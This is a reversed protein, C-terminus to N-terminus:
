SKKEIKASNKFTKLVIVKENELFADDNLESDIDWYTGKFFVKGNRIQGIGKENFFDEKIEKQSSLFKELMKKRLLFILILSILTATAIQWIGDEYTYAYSIFATLVFGIGFWILIFSSVIAEFAILFVGIALLIYPNFVELMIPIQM